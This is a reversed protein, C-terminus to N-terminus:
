RRPADKARRATRYVFALVRAVAEYLEEPILQGIEVSGHLSRALPPNEVLPVDHEDAIRRIQAAVLDQGKAVVEPAARAPEYRLAVAFHTPNTIVVDAHPVAAMMRRRAAQMQRRRIAGRVEPAVERQRAEDKIEQRSMRLSREHRRRQWAYDVIGVLLYAGAARQAVGLATSGLMGALVAPPVGLAAGTNTVHGILSLAVVGGVVAVKVLSKGTEFATQPGYIRKAGQLPSLRKIDPKLAHPSPRLGVQAINAIVGVAVCIAAIPAVTAILTTEMDSMLAHLGATSLALEPRGILAYTHVMANEVNDVISPGVISVGMLGVFLVLAGSLDQSRAVQGRKRAEQRRKPTPKETRDESV